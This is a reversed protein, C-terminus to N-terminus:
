SPFPRPRRVEEQTQVHDDDIIRRQLSAVHAPLPHHHHSPLFLPRLLPTFAPPPDFVNAM